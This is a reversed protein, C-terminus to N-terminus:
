PSGVATAIARAEDGLATGVAVASAAPRLVWRVPFSLSAGAALSVMSGQVEVEVYNGNSYLEVEGHDPATTSFAVDNFLKMFILGTSTTHALWGETGDAYIKHNGYNTSGYTQSAEVFWEIGGDAVTDLDNNGPTQTPGDTGLPFFTIGGPAVRSIEWPAVSVASTGTNTITYIIDIAELALNPTVEKKITVMTSGLASAANSLTVTTGTLSATYTSTNIIAEPPWTGANWSAQPSTWFTSGWNDADLKPLVNEGSYSFELIRAGDKPGIVFRVNGFEYVFTGDSQEVPEKLTAGAGGTGETGGGGDVGGTGTSEDGGTGVAGGTDSGGIGPGGGDFSDTGGVSNGGTASGGASNGGSAESGGVATLAGGSATGGSAAAIGGGSGGTADAPDPTGSCALAFLSGFCVSTLVSALFKM